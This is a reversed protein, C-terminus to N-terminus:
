KTYIHKVKQLISLLLFMNFDKDEMEQDLEDYHIIQDHIKLVDKLMKKQNRNSPFKGYRFKYVLKESCWRKHEIPAFVKFYPEVVERGLDGTHGMKNLFEVKIDLHRAVYRNSDQKIDALSEWRADIGFLKRTEEFRRNLVKAVDDIITKELEILPENTSFNMNLFKKEIKEIFDQNLLKREDDGVLWEFEYKMSYFYNITKALADVTESEDILKAKTAVDSYMKIFHFNFNKRLIEFLPTKQGHINSEVPNILDLIKSKEPLCVIINIKDLDDITCYLLQRFSNALDVVFTDSKGFIYVNSLTPIEKIFDSKMFTDNSFNEDLMKVPLIDLFEDIFPFKYYLNKVHKEAEPDILFIKLNKLGPIHSLIISEAIFSEAIGNFGIIAISNDSTTISINNDTITKSYVVDKVPSYTDFILQAASQYVNFTDIDLNETKNYLDLYTKLFNNNYWDEIHVKADIHRSILHGQNIESLVNTAEMNLEDNGLLILCYSANTIGAQIQEAKELASGILVSGGLQRITQLNDNEPDKEIVVVKKHAKLLEIAIKSGITGAGFIVIHNKYLYRIKNVLIWKYIYNYVSYSIGYGLMVAAGFKAYILQWNSIKTDGSEMIFMNLVAYLAGMFDYDDGIKQAELYFGYIGFIFVSAIFGGLVFPLLLKLNRLINDIQKKM